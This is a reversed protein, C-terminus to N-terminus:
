FFVGAALGISIDPATLYAKISVKEYILLGLGAMGQVQCVYNRDNFLMYQLGIEGYAQVWKIKKSPRNELLNILEKNKDDSKQLADQLKDINLNDSTAIINILKKLDNEAEIYNKITEIYAKELEKPDDPIIVEKVGYRTQLQITRSFIPILLMFSFLVTLLFRKM